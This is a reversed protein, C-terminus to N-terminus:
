IDACLPIVSAAAKEHINIYAASSLDATSQFGKITLTGDAAATFLTDGGIMGGVVAGGSACDGTSAPAAAGRAHFHAIYNVGPKLGTATLTTRRDGGTLDVFKATGAAGTYGSGATSNLQATFAVSKTTGTVDPAKNMNCSALAITGVLALLALRNM